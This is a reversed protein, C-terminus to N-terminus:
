KETLLRWLSVWIVFEFLSRELALLWCTLLWCLARLWENWLRSLSGGNPFPPLCHRGSQSFCMWPSNQCEAPIQSKQFPKEWWCSATGMLIVWCEVFLGPFEAPWSTLFALGGGRVLGKGGSGDESSQCLDVVLLSFAQKWKSSHTRAMIWTSAVLQLLIDFPLLTVGSSPRPILSQPHLHQSLWFVMNAMSFQLWVWPTKLSNRWNM